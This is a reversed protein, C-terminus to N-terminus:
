AGPVRASLAQGGRFSIRRFPALRWIQGSKALNPWNQSTKAL